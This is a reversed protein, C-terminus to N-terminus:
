MFNFESENSSYQLLCVEREAKIVPLLEVLQCKDEQVVTFDEVKIDMFQNGAHCTQIHSYPVIELLNVCNQLVLMYM